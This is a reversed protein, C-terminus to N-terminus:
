MSNLLISVVHAFESVGQLDRYSKVHVHQVSTTQDFSTYIHLRYIYLNAYGTYAVQRITRHTYQAKTPFHPVKYITGPKAKKKGKVKRTSPQDSPWSLTTQGSSMKMFLWWILPERTTLQLMTDCYQLHWCRGAPRDVELIWRFKTKETKKQWKRNKWGNPSYRLCARYLAGKRKSGMKSRDIDCRFPVHLVKQTYWFKKSNQKTNRNKNVFLGSRDKPHFESLDLGSISPYFIHLVQCLHFVEFKTISGGCLFSNFFSPYLEAFYFFFYIFGNRRIACLSGGVPHRHTGPRRM